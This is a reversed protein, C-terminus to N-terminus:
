CGLADRLERQQKDYTEDGSDAFFSQCYVTKTQTRDQHTEWATIGSAVAAAVAAVAIMQLLLRKSREPDQPRPPKPPRPPKASGITDEIMGDRADDM